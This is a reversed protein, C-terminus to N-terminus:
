TTQWEKHRLWPQRRWVALEQLAHIRLLMKHSPMIEYLGMFRTFPCVEINGIVCMVNLPQIRFITLLRDSIQQFMSRYWLICELNVLFIITIDNNLYTSTMGPIINCSAHYQQVYSSLKM